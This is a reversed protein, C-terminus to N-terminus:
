PYHRLNLIWARSPKLRSVGDTIDRGSPGTPRINPLLIRAVTAFCIILNIEHEIDSYFTSTVVLLVEAALCSIQGSFRQGIRLVAAVTSRPLPLDM